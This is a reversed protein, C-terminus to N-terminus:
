RVSCVRTQGAAEVLVAQWAQNAAGYDLSEQLEPMNPHTGFSFWHKRFPFPCVDTPFSAHGEFLCGPGPLFERNGPCIPFDSAKLVDNGFNFRLFIGAPHSSIIQIGNKPGLLLDAASCTKFHRKTIFTTWSFVSGDAPRSGGGAPHLVERSIM